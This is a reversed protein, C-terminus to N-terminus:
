QGALRDHRRHDIDVHMDAVLSVGSPAGLIVCRLVNEIMKLTFRKVSGSHRLRHTCTWGILGKLELAILL